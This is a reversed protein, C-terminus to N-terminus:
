SLRRYVTELFVTELRWGDGEEWKKCIGRVALRGTQSASHGALWGM